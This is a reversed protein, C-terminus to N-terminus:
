RMYYACRDYRSASPQKVMSLQREGDCEDSGCSHSLGALSLAVRNWSSDDATFCPDDDLGTAVIRRWVQDIIAVATGVDCKGVKIGRRADFFPAPRIGAVL